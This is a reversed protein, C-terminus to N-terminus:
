LAPSRVFLSTVNEVKCDALFSPSPHPERLDAAQLESAVLHTKGSWLVWSLESAIPMDLFVHSENALNCTTGRVSGTASHCGPHFPLALGTVVFNTIV